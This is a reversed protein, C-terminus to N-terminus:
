RGSGGRASLLLMMAGAIFAPPVLILTFVLLVHIFGGATFNTVVGVLWVTLSLIGAVVSGLLTLIGAKRM